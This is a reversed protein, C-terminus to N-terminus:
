KIVNVSINQGKNPKNLSSYIDIIFLIILILTFLLKSYYSFNSIKIILYTAIYYTCIVGGVGFFLLGVFCVRGNINLFSDKYDWWKKYFLKELIYSTMYELFGCLLIILIVMLFPKNMFRSFLVLILIMGCGYIPLWPGKLFGRNVFKKKKFIFLIMEWLYGIFSFAFFLLITTLINDRSLYNFDEMYINHHM